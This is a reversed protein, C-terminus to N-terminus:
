APPAQLADAAVNIEWWWAGSCRQICLSTCVSPEWFYPSFFNELTATHTALPMLGQCIELLPKQVPTKIIKKKNGPATMIDHRYTRIRRVAYVCKIRKEGSRVLLRTHWQRCKSSSVEFGRAQRTSSLKISLLVALARHDNWVDFTVWMDLNCSYVPTLCFSGHQVWIVQDVIARRCRPTWKLRRIGNM